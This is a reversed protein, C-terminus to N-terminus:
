AAPSTYLSGKEPGHGVVDHPIRWTRDNHGSSASDGLQGIISASCGGPGSQAPSCGVGPPTERSRHHAQPQTHSRGGIATGRGPLRSDLRSGVGRGPHLLKNCTARGPARPIVWEPSIAAVLDIDTIKGMRLTVKWSASRLTFPGPLRRPRKAASIRFTWQIWGDRTAGTVRPETKRFAPAGLAQTVRIEQGRLQRSWRDFRQTRDKRASPSPQERPESRRQRRRTNSSSAPLSWCM